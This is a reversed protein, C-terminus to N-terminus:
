FYWLNQGAYLIVSGLGIVNEGTFPWQPSTEHFFVRLSCLWWRWRWWWDEEEEKMSSKILGKYMYLPPVLRVASRLRGSPAKRDSPHTETQGLALRDMDIVEKWIKKPHGCGCGGAPNLKQVSWLSATITYFAGASEFLEFEVFTIIDAPQFLFFALM